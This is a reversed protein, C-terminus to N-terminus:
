VHVVYISCKYITCDLWSCVLVTNIRRCAFTVLFDVLVRELVIGTKLLALGMERKTAKTLLVFYANPYPLHLEQYAPNACRRVRAEKIPLFWLHALTYTWSVLFM